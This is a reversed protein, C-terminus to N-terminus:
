RQIIVKETLTRTGGKLVIFYTGPSVRRGSRNDGRWTIREIGEDMTGSYLTKVLEGSVSYVDLEVDQVGPSVFEVELGAMAPNPSLTLRFGGNIQDDVDASYTIVFLGSYAFHSAGDRDICTVRLMGDPTATEPVVWDYVRGEVSAKVTEWTMGADPSFSLTYPHIWDCDFSDWTVRYAIGAVLDGDGFVHVEPMLIDVDAAARVEYGEILCTIEATAPGSSDFALAVEKQRFVAKVEPEGDNDYDDVSVSGPIAEARGEVCVCAPDVTIADLGPPVDVFAQVTLGPIGARITAPAMWATSALATDNSYRLSFALTHARSIMRGALNAGPNDPDFTHPITPSHRVIGEMEGMLAAASLPRGKCYADEAADLAALIDALAGEPISDQGSDIHGRLYAFKLAVVEAPSRSDDGIAFMSFEDDESRTRGLIRLAPVEEIYDVTADRWIGCPGSPRTFVRVRESPVGEPLVSDLLAVEVVYDFFANTNVEYFEPFLQVGGPVPCPDTENKNVFLLGSDTVADFTLELEDPIAVAVSDGEPIVIGGGEFAFISISDANGGVYLLDDHFTAAQLCPGSDGCCNLFGGELSHIAVLDAQRTIEYVAEEDRSLVFLNQGYLALGTPNPIGPLPYTGLVTGDTRVEVLASEVKDLVFLTQDGGYVLGNPMHIESAHLSSVIEISEEDVWTLAILERPKDGVWYQMSGSDYAASRLHPHKNPCGRPRDDFESMAIVAGTEPSILYVFSAGMCDTAVFLNEGDSALGMVYRPTGCASLPAPIKGVLQFDAGATGALAVLLLGSLLLSYRFGTKM